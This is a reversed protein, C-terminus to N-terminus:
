RTQFQTNISYVDYQINNFMLYASTKLLKRTIFGFRTIDLRSVNEDM